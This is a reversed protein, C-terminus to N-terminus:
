KLNLKTGYKQMVYFRYCSIINSIYQLTYKFPFTNKQGLFVENLFINVLPM